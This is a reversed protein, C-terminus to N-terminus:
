AIAGMPHPLVCSRMRDEDAEMYVSTSDPDAYGLVTSIIPMATGARLMKSAANHRLMQTGGGRLGAVAFARETAACITAHDVYAVHPAKTRVFVNACDSDPRENLVYEALAELVAPALPM